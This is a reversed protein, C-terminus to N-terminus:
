DHFFNHIFLSNLRQLGPMYQLTIPYFNDFLPFSTFNPLGTVRCSATSSKNSHIRSQKYSASPSFGEKPIAYLLKYINPPLLYKFFSPKANITTNTLCSSVFQPSLYPTRAEVSNHMSSTDVKALILPLYYKLLMIKLATSFSFLSSLINIDSMFNSFSLYQGCSALMELECIVDETSASSHKYLSHREIFYTLLKQKVESSICSDTFKAPIDYGLLLEDPGDGGIAVKYSCTIAEFLYHSYPISHDFIDHYKALYLSRIQEDNNILQLIDVSLPLSDVLKPVIRSSSRGPLNLSFLLSGYLDIGQQHLIFPISSSDWGGSVILSKPEEGHKFVSACDNKVIDALDSFTASGTSDIQQRVTNFVDYYKSIEHYSNNVHLFSGAPLQNIEQYPSNPFSLWPFVSRTFWYDNSSPSSLNLQSMLLLIDNLHSSFLLINNKFYYYLPKQGFHDRVLVLSKDINNYVYGAFMGHLNAFGNTGQRSYIEALIQSDFELLNFTINLEYAKENVSYIEGNMLTSYRGCSSLYPSNLKQYNFITLRRFNVVLNENRVVLQEDPGRFSLSSRKRYDDSSFYKTINQIHKSSSPISKSIYFGTLGCM